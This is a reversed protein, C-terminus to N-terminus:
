KNYFKQKIFKAIEDFCDEAQPYVGCKDIFAHDMGRYRIIKVDTGMNKLKIGYEEGQLLLYDYEATFILTDPMKGHTNDLLPSIYPDSTDEDNQIYLTITNKIFEKTDNMMAKVLEKDKGLTYKNISWKDKSNDRDLLVVPYILIQGKIMNITKSDLDKLSCAVSLNGGASDGAVCIKEKDINFEESNNYVYRVTEFCDELGLPYPYEPALRYEVSIVVVNAKEAIAKCPNEVVDLTGGIFGGGHFFIICPINDCSKEKKYARINIHRNELQITKKTTIVNEKTIDINKYGMSSRIKEVDVKNCSKNEGNSKLIQSNTKKVRPDLIGEEDSDPINKIVINVGNIEKNIEKNKLENLLQIYDLKM